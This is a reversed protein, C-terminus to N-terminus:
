NERIENGTPRIRKNNQKNNKQRYLFVATYKCNIIYTLDPLRGVAKRIDAQKNNRNCFYQINKSFDLYIWRILM